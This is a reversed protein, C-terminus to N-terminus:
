EDKRWLVGVLVQAEDEIVFESPMFLCCRHLLLQLLPHAPDAPDDWSYGVSGTRGEEDNTLERM